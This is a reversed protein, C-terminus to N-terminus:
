LRDQGAQLSQQLGSSTKEQAARVAEMQQQLLSLGTAQGSLERRGAIHNNILWILLALIVVMLVVALSIMLTQM